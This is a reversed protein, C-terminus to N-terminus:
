KWNIYKDPKFENNDFAPNIKVKVLKSEAVHLGLSYSDMNLPLQYGEFSYYDSYKNLFINTENDNIIMGEVSKIYFDNPDIGVLMLVTDQKHLYIYELSDGPAPDYKIENYSGFKLDLPLMLSLYSYYEAKFRIPSLETLTDRNIMWADPFIFIRTEQFDQKYRIFKYKGDNEFYKETKITAGLFMAKTEYTLKVSTLKQLHEVGGYAELCKDILENGRPSDKILTANVYLSDYNKKVSNQHFSHIADVGEESNPDIGYSNGSIFAIFIIILATLTSTRKM